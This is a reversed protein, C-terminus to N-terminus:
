IDHYFTRGITRLNDFGMNHAHKIVTICESHIFFIFIYECRRNICLTQIVIREVDIFSVAATNLFTGNIRIASASTPVSYELLRFYSNGSVLEGTTHSILKAGLEVGNEFLTFRFRANALTFDANKIIIKM